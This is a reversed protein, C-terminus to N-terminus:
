RMGGQMGMPQGQSQDMMPSSGQPAAPAGGGRGNAALAEQVLAQFDAQIKAMRAAFEQGGQPAGSLAQGILGLSEDVNAIMQMGDVGGEAGQEQPAGQEM